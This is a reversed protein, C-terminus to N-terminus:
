KQKKEQNDLSQKQKQAPERVSVSRGVYERVLKVGGVNQANRIYKM